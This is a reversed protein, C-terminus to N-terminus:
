VIAIFANERFEFVKVEKVDMEALEIAGSNNVVTFPAGYRWVNRVQAKASAPM